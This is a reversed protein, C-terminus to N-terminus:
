KTMKMLILNERVEEVASSKVQRKRKTMADFDDVFLSFIKEM